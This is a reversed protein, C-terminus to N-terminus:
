LSRESLVLNELFILPFLREELGKVRVFDLKLESARQYTYSPTHTPHSHPTLAETQSSKKQKHEGKEGKKEREVIATPKVHEQLQGIRYKIDAIPLSSAIAHRKQFSSVFLRGIM